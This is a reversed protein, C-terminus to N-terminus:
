KKEGLKLPLYESNINWPAEFIHERFRKDNKALIEALPRIKLRMNTKQFPCLVDAVPFGLREAMLKIKSEHVLCMPRIIFLKGGFFGQVPMMTSFNGRFCLNILTTNIIDDLNHGLAIKDIGLEGARSFLIRKRNRSCLYCNFDGKFSPPFMDAKIVEYPIKLIEFFSAIKEDCGESLPYQDWEIRVAHLSYKIPLWRMRVSLMFALALSDKGGSVGLLIKDNDKIMDFRNIGRGTEKVIRMVWPKLFETDNLDM